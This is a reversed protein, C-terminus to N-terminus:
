RYVAILRGTNTDSDGWWRISRSTGCYILTQRIFWREVTTTVPPDGNTVKHPINIVPVIDGKQFWPVFNRWDPPSIIQPQPVPPTATPDGQPQFSDGEQAFGWLNSEEVWKWYANDTKQGTPPEAVPLPPQAEPDGQTHGDIKAEYIYDIGKNLEAEITSDYLVRDGKSYLGHESDWDALTMNNLRVEYKGYGVQLQEDESDPNPWLLGRKITGFELAVAASGTTEIRVPVKDLQGKVERMERETKDIRRAAVKSSPTTATSGGGAGGFARAIDLEAFDTQVRTIGGKAQFDWRVSTVASGAAGVDAVDANTIMTGIALGADIARTEVVIRNHRRGYWAMAAAMVQRLRERDDRLIRRTPEGEPEEGGDKAFEVLEGDADIDVITGEAIFWLEATPIDITLVRPNEYDEASKAILQVYQDTEIFCTVIMEKYDVGAEGM